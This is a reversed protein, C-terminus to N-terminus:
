SEFTIALQYIYNPHFAKNGSFNPDDKTECDRSLIKNKSVANKM